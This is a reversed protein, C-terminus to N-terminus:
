AHASGPKSLLQRANLLNPTASQRRRWRLAFRGSAAQMMQRQGRWCWRDAAQRQWAHFVKTSVIGV